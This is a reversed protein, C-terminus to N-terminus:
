GCAHAATGQCRFVHRTADLSRLVFCSRSSSCPRSLTSPRRARRGAHLTGTQRALALQSRITHTTSQMISQCARPAKPPYSLIPPARCSVRAALRDGPVSVGPLASGHVDVPPIPPARRSVRLSSSGRFVHTHPPSRAPISECRMHEGPVYCRMHEGAASFSVCTGAGAALVHMFQSSLTSSSCCFVGSAPRRFM